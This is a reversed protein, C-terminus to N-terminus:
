IFIFSRYQKFSTWLCSISTTKPSCQPSFSIDVMVKQTSLVHCLALQHVVRAYLSYNYHLSAGIQTIISRLRPSRSYYNHQIYSTLCCQKMVKTQTGRRPMHAKNLRPSFTKIRTQKPPDTALLM